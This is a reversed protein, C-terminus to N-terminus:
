GNIEKIKARFEIIGSYTDEMVYKKSDKFILVVGGNPTIRANELEDFSYSVPKKLPLVIAIKEDNWYYRIHSMVFGILFFPVAGVIFMPILDGRGEYIQGYFVPSIVLIAAIVYFLTIIFFNQKVVGKPGYDPTFRSM